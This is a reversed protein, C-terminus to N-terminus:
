SGRGGHNKMADFLIFRQGDEPFGCIRFERFAFTLLCFASYLVQTPPGSLSEGRSRTSQINMLRLLLCFVEAKKRKGEAKEREQSRSKRTRQLLVGTRLFERQIISNWRSVPYDRGEM